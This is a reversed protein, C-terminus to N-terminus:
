WVHLSPESAAPERLYCALAIILSVAGDIRQHASIKMPRIEQWRNEEIALNSMNWDLVPNGPHRLRRSVVLGELLKTPESMVRFGQPIEVVREDGLERMLRTVM